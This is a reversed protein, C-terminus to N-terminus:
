KAGEHNGLARNLLTEAELLLMSLAFADGSYVIKRAERVKNRARSAATVSTLTGRPQRKRVAVYEEVSVGAAEAADADVQRTMPRRHQIM